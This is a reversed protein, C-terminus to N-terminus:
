SKTEATKRPFVNHFNQADVKNLYKTGKVLATKPLAKLLWADIMVHDVVQSTPHYFLIRCGRVVHVMTSICIPRDGIHGVTELYGHNEEKWENEYVEWLASQEFPYAEVAGVVGKFFEIASDSVAAISSATIAAKAIDKGQQVGYAYAVGLAEDDLIDLKQQAKGADYAQRIREDTSDAGVSKTWKEFVKQKNM